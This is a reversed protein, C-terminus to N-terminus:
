RYTTRLGSAHQQYFVVSVCALHKPRHELQSTVDDILRGITDRPEHERMVRERVHPDNVNAKRPHITVLHRFPNALIGVAAAHQQQGHSTLAGDAGARPWRFLSEITM